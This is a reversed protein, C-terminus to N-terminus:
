AALQYQSECLGLRSKDFARSKMGLAFFVRLLKREVVALIKTGVMGKEKKGHYYGGYAATKKVMGFVAEGLVARLTSRGKKSLHVQGTFQGSKRERLNLGAFKMLANVTKFDELPGTEGLIRAIRFASLFGKSVPPIRAKEKVLQDYLAVMQVKIEVLRREAEEMRAWLGELRYEMAKLYADELILLSSSLANDWLKQLTKAHIGLAHKRMAKEFRDQGAEVIRYPNYRFLQFLVQGTKLYLFQSTFDLDCFLRALLGHCQGKLSTVQRKEEDYARNLERLALYPGSLPRHRLVKDMKSLMLIVRPDKTDTKGADNNEIVKAKHVHEGSVYATLHGRLRALRLLKESYAGTSECTIFLRSYGNLRAKEALADLTSLINRPRNPLTGTTAEFTGGSANPIEFYLDLASKGVDFAVLLAQTSNIKLALTKTMM